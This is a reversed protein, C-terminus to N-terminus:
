NCSILRCSWVLDYDMSERPGFQELLEAANM